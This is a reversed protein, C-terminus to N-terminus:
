CDDFRGDIFSPEMLNYDAALDGALACNNTILLFITQRASIPVGMFGCYALLPMTALLAPVRDCPSQNVIKICTSSHGIQGALGKKM